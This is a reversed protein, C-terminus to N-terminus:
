FSTTALVEDFRELCEAYSSSSFSAEINVVGDEGFPIEVLISRVSSQNSAVFVSTKLAQQGAIKIVEEGRQSDQPGASSNSVRQILRKLYDFEDEQYLIATFIGCGRAISKNEDFKIDPSLANIIHPNSEDGEVRWEEPVMFSFGAKENLVMTRVITSDNPDPVQQIKYDGEQSWRTPTASYEKEPSSAGLLYLFIGGVVVVLLVGVGILITKNM